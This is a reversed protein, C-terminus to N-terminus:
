KPKEQSAALYSVTDWANHIGIFLLLMAVGGIAFLAWPQDHSLGAAGVLLTTYVALPLLLHWAWDELVPKYGTQRRMRRMVVIVYVIGALATAGVIHAPDKM